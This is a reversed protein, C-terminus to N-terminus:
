ITITPAITGRNSPPVVRSESSNKTKITSSPKQGSATEKVRQLSEAPMNKGITAIQQNIREAEKRLDAQSQEILSAIDASFNVPVHETVLMNMSFAVGKHTVAQQQMSINLIFGSVVRGDYTMVAQAGMDATRTGRFFNEYFFMFDNVWKHNEDNLLIGTFTYVPPRKGYFFTYFSTFTEVVQYKETQSETVGDLFFRSYATIVNGQVAATQGFSSQSKLERVTQALNDTIDTSISLYAITDKEPEGLVRTGPIYDGTTSYFGGNRYADVDTETPKRAQPTTSPQNTVVNVEERVQDKSEKKSGDPSIGRIDNTVDKGVQVIGNYLTSAANTIKTGAQSFMKTVASGSTSTTGVDTSMTSTTTAIAM